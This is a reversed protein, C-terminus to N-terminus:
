LCLFSQHIEEALVTKYAEFWNFKSTSDVYLPVNNYISELMTSVIAETASIIRCLSSQTHDIGITFKCIEQILQYISDSVFETTYLESNQNSIDSTIYHERSRYAEEFYFSISSILSAITRHMLFIFVEIGIQKSRHKYHIARTNSANNHCGIASWNSIRMLYFLHSLKYFTVRMRHLWHFVEGAKYCYFPTYINSVSSFPCISLNLAGNCYSFRYSLRCINLFSDMHEKDADKAGSFYHSSINHFLLEGMKNCQREPCVSVPLHSREADFYRAIVEGWSDYKNFVLAKLLFHHVHLANPGSKQIALVRHGAEIHAGTLRATYASLARVGEFLGGCETGCYGPCCDKLSKIWISRFIDNSGGEAGLLASYVGVRLVLNALGQLFTPCAAVFAVHQTGDLYKVNGSSVPTGHVPHTEIRICNSEAVGQMDSRHYIFFSYTPFAETVGQHLWTDWLVAWPHLSVSFITRYLTSPKYVLSNFDSSQHTVWKSYLINLIISSYYIPQVQSLEEHVQLILKKISMIWRFVPKFVLEIKDSILKIHATNSLLLLFNSLYHPIQKLYVSFEITLSDIFAQYVLNNYVNEKPINFDVPCAINNEFTGKNVTCLMYKIYQINLYPIYFQKFIDLYSTIDDKIPIVSCNIYDLTNKIDTDVTFKFLDTREGLLTFSITEMIWQSM